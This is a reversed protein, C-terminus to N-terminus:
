FNWYKKPSIVLFSTCVDLLSLGSLGSALTPFLKVKKFRSFHQLGYSQFTRFTEQRKEILDIPEATETEQQQEVGPRLHGSQLPTIRHYSVRRVLFSLAHVLEPHLVTCFTLTDLM